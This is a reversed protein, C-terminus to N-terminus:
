DHIIQVAIVYDVVFNLSDKFDVQVWHFGVPYERFLKTM